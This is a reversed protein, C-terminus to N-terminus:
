EEVGEMEADLIMQEREQQSYIQNVKYQHVEGATGCNPIGMALGLWSAGANEFYEKEYEAADEDSLFFMKYVLLVPKRDAIYKFWVNIPYTQGAEFPVKKRELYDAEFAKQASEIKLADAITDLGLKGDSPGTLQGRSGVNIRDGNEADISATRQVAKLEHDCIVYKSNNENRGEMFIVDWKNLFENESENLFSYISDIDFRINFRSSKYNKLFKMIISKDVDSLQLRNGKNKNRSLKCGSTIALEVFIDLEFCNKRNIEIDNVMYPTDYVDGYFSIYEVNDDATRMKNAATIKLESSDNRVRIGFDRPTKKLDKMRRIDNKLLESSEAIESYWDVSKKSTWIRFIDDYNYRYGFWRGMQMLVDFTATSRYFYSVVLGELTLGRSLAMGGIAIVRLNPNQEYDLKDSNKASNVVMIQINECASYLAESVDNWTFELTSYNDEWLEYLRKLEPIRKIEDLNNTMDFKIKSFIKNFISEVREKIYAHVDKFRSINIMMTRPSKEDNRLDRIANALLFTYVADSLSDPLLGRWDKKHKCYFSFGDKEKVGADKVYKLANHYQGDKYFIKTAGIYTDSTPLSYIFHEPFLDDPVEPDIFVNAFPTATFGVYSTKTFIKLLKRIWENIVTPNEEPKHTNISANDAEDDIMLMPYPIKGIKEDINIKYLWNYLKELVKANKKVICLIVKSSELSQMIKNKSGVFDDERSTVATVYLPKGDLGVGVRASTNEDESKSIDFGVFGEEVRQQTQTRLTEITGTLLIIIKYGADAAKCIYGIYTSTKGSQVDGLILGKRTFDSECQPDGLLNMLEKLTVFDMKNVAPQALHMENILFKRYRNWFFGDIEDNNVRETYWDYHMYDDTICEGDTQKSLYQYRAQDEIREKEEDTLPFKPKDLVQKIIRDLAEEDIEKTEDRQWDYLEGIFQICRSIHEVNM